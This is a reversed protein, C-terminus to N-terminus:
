LDVAELQKELFAECASNIKEFRAIVQKGHETLQTGGGDKGGINKTVLPEEATRNMADMLKWAKKYSMNLAKAAASISQTEGIKKLLQIRGYGLYVNGDQEIWIRSKITKM